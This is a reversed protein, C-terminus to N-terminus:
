FAGKSANKWNSGLVLPFASHLFADLHDRLRNNQSVAMLATYLQDRFEIVSVEGAYNYFRKVNRYTNQGLPATFREILYYQQSRDLSIGRFFEQRPHVIHDRVWTYTFIDDQWGEKILEWGPHLIFAHTPSQMLMGKDPNQLFEEYILPPLNKLSDLLFIALEIENEVWKADETIPNERKFYTQLFITM